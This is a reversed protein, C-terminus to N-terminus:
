RTYSHSPLHQHSILTSSASAPPLHSHSPLHQHSIARHSIATPAQSRAKANPTCKFEDSPEPYALLAMKASAVLAAHSDSAATSATSTVSSSSSSSGAAGDGAVSPEESDADNGAPTEGESEEEEEGEKEEEDDEGGGGGGGGGFGGGGDGEDDEDDEGAQVVNGPKEESEDDSPDSLKAPAADLDATGYHAYPGVVDSLPTTRLHRHRVVKRVPKELSFYRHSVFMIFGSLIFLMTLPTCTRMDRRKWLQNQLFHSRAFGVPEIASFNAFCGVFFRGARSARYFALHALSLRM